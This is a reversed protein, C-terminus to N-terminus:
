NRGHDLLTTEEDPNHTRTRQCADALGSASVLQRSSETRHNVEQFLSLRCDPQVSSLGQPVLRSLLLALRAPPRGPLGPGPGPAPQPGHREPAERPPGIKGPSAVAAGPEPLGLAPGSGPAIGPAQRIGSPTGAQFPLQLTIKQDGRLNGPWLSGAAKSPM